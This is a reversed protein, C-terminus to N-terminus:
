SENIGTQIHNEEIKDLVEIPINKVPMNLDIKPKKHEPSVYTEDKVISVKSSPFQQHHFSKIVSIEEMVPHEVDEDSSIYNADKYPKLQNPPVSRKHAKGWIDKVYVNGCESIGTITYPHASWKRVLKEKRSADKLNRKLVKQGIKLPKTNHIKNYYKSQTHQAKKINGAVEVLVQQRISLMAEIKEECSKEEWQEEMAQVSPAVPNGKKIEYDMEFPLKPECGYLIKFPSTKTSCHRSVRIAFLVSNLIELWNVDPPTVQKHIM